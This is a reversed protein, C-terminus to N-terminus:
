LWTHLVRDIQELSLELNLLERKLGRVVPVFSLDCTQDLQTQAVLQTGTLAVDQTPGIGHIGGKGLLLSNEHFLARKVGFLDPEIDQGHRTVLQSTHADDVDHAM